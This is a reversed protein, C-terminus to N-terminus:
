SYLDSIKTLNQIYKMAKAQNEEGMNRIPERLRNIADMIANQNGGTDSLDSSYDKQIFFDINGNYIEDRYKFTVYSKWIKIISSPNAKKLMILASKATKIQRDNPFITQIDELFEVFHNNFASVISTM